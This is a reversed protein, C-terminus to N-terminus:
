IKVPIESVISQVDSGEVWWMTEGYPSSCDTILYLNEVYWPGFDQQVMRGSGNKTKEAWRDPEHCLSQIAVCPFYETKRPDSNTVIEIFMPKSIPITSFGIIKGEM